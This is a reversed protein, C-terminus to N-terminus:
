TASGRAEALADKLDLTGVLLSLGLIMGSLGEQERAKIARVDELNRVGGSVIVSLGSSRSLNCSAEINPGTLMGDRAIDTHICESFGIARMQAALDAALRGETQTWGQTAVRGDRADIGVIVRDGFRKVAREAMGPDRVAATGLVCRWVGAQLWREVDDESRVGGGLEVRLATERVIRIVTEYTVGDFAGTRAAGLDVIHLYEAGAGRYTWALMVPDGYSTKTGYDGQRLRVVEGALLDIAPLVRM